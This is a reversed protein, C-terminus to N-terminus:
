GSFRGAIDRALRRGQGIMREMAERSRDTCVRHAPQHGIYGRNFAGALREKRQETTGEAEILQAMRERWTASPAGCLATLYTLSGMLEALRLLDPEYAAPPPEPPPAEKAPPAQPTPPRRQQALPATASLLLCACAAATWRRM